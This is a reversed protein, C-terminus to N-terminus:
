DNSISIVQKKTHETRDWYLYTPPPENYKRRYGNFYGMRQNKESYVAEWGDKLPAVGNIEEEVYECMEEKSVNNETTQRLETIESSLTENNEELENMKNLIQENEKKLENVVKLLYQITEENSMDVISEAQPEM